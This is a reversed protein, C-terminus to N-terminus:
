KEASIKSNHIRYNLLYDPLIAFKYLNNKYSRKWLEFDDRPIESSILRTCTTWFNRSYCVSPHSIINHGNSAELDPNKDDMRMAKLFNGNEDVNYYNSSVIDFGAIIYPIQKEFRDLSYSDDININFACDYGLNFVTDLLYNHAEAHDNFVKSEFNSMPYVQNGGGGYDIEFVDFNKYTQNKISDICEKVWQEPYRGINKHFIIVASKINKKDLLMKPLVEANM